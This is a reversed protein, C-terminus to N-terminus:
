LWRLIFKVKDEEKQFGFEDFGSPDLEWAWHTNEKGIESDLWLHIVDLEEQELIPIKVDLKM